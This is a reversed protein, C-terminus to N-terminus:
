CRLFQTFHIIQTGDGIPFTFLEKNTISAYGNIHSTNAAGIYFADDVFGIAINSSNKATILDGIVFNINNRVQLGNSLLLGNEAFIEFDFFAVPETGSVELEQDGYFGVLGLNQDFPGNNILNTHFGVM